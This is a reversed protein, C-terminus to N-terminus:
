PKTPLDRVQNLGLSIGEGQAYRCLDRQLQNRNGESSEEVFAALKSANSTSLGKQTFYGNYKLDESAQRDKKRLTSSGEQGRVSKHTIQSSPIHAESM